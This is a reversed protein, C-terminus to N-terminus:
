ITQFNTQLVNRYLKNELTWKEDVLSTIKLHQGLQVYMM